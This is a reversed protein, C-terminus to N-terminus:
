IYISKTLKMMETSIDHYNKKVTYSYNVIM